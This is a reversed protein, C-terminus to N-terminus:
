FSVDIWTDNTKNVLTIIEPKEAAKDNTFYELPLCILM